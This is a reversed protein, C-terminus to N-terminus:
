RNKKVNKVVKKDTINFLKLAEDSSPDLFTLEYGKLRSKRIYIEIGKRGVLLGVTATIISFLHYVTRPVDFFLPCIFCLVSIALWLAMLRLEYNTRFPFNYETDSSM